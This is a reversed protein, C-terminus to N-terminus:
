WACFIVNFVGLGTSAIDGLVMVADWRYFHREPDVDMYGCGVCVRVHLGVIRRVGCGMSMFM